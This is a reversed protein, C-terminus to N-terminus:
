KNENKNNKTNNSFLSSVEKSASPIKQSFLDGIDRALLYLKASEMMKAKAGKPPEHENIIKEFFDKM